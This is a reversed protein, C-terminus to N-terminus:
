AHTSVYSNAHSHGLLLQCGRRKARTRYLAGGTAMKEREEIGDGGHVETDSAFNAM